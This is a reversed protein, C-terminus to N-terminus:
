LSLIAKLQEKNAPVKRPPNAFQSSIKQNNTPDILEGSHYDITYAPDKLLNGTLVAVVTEDKDIKGSDVLKKIGALTAASAPECGIGDRGIMAKADAIEEETVEAFDGNTWALARLAKKWSVPNGIKIATALTNATVPTLHDQKNELMEVFPNAGKAQIVTLRPMRRIFGANFLEKFAKGIASVNGLNGGPVVVRDPVIWDLQDLMEIAITKQGELRFPNISNLLYLDTERSLEIVLKMATDFDGDIQLTVAGYELSQSLKGLAIQGGPVFVAATIGAAAAYAAMSASTNGTSACAVTRAQLVRAQTAGTTMGNDKFSGTPNMGQHKFTLNRLGAYSASRPGDFLPTNGEKLTVVQSYDSVFPILERYRWVGSADIPANSLRRLRWVDKIEEPDLDNFCYAVDLLGNCAPCTYIKENIDYGHSCSPEICRLQPNSM